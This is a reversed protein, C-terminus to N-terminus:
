ELLILRPITDGACWIIANQEFGNGLESADELSIGLILYGPEPPWNNDPHQGVSDMYEFGRAELAKALDAQRSTNAQDDLIKSYPNCATIFASSSVSYRSHLQQLAKSTKGVMFKFPHTDLVLYETERYARVTEPHITSSTRTM